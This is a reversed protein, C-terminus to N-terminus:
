IKGVTCPLGLARSQPRRYIPAVSSVLIHDLLLLTSSLELSVNMFLLKSLLAGLRLLLWGVSIM